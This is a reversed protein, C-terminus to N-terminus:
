VIPGKEVFADVAARFGDGIIDIAIYAENANIVILNSGAISGFVSECLVDVLEPRTEAHALLEAAIETALNHRLSMTTVVVDRAVFIERGEVPTFNYRNGAYVLTAATATYGDFTMSFNSGNTHNYRTLTKM